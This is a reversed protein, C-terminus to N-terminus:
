GRRVTLGSEGTIHRAALTPRAHLHLMVAFCPPFQAVAALLGIGSAAPGPVEVQADEFGELLDGGVCDAPVTAEDALACSFWLVFGAAPLWSLGTVLVRLFGSERMKSQLIPFSM